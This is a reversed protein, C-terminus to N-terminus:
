KQRNLQEAFRFQSKVKEDRDKRFKESWEYYSDVPRLTLGRSERELNLREMEAAYNNYLEKELLALREEKTLGARSLEFERKGDNSYIKWEASKRRGPDYLEANFLFEDEGKLEHYKYRDRALSVLEAARKEPLGSLVTKFTDQGHQARIAQLFDYLLNIPAQDALFYAYAQGFAERRDPDMYKLSEQWYTRTSETVEAVLGAVATGNDKDGIEKMRAKEEKSLQPLRSEWTKWEVQRQLVGEIKDLRSEEGTKRHSKSLAEKLLVVHDPEPTLAGRGIQYLTLVLLVAPLFRRVM